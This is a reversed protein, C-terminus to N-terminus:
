KEVTYAPVISEERVIRKIVGAEFVVVLRGYFEKQQAEKVLEGLWMAGEVQRREAPSM